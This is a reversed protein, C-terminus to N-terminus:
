FLDSHSGIRVLTLEDTTRRYILLLDPRLHCDRFCKWNGSLAHDHHNSSLPAGSALQEVVASLIGDIAPDAKLVRKYDRKFRGTIAIARM